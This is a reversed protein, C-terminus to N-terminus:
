VHARGIQTRFYSNSFLLSLYVDDGKAITWAQKSIANVMVKCGSHDQHLARINFEMGDLASLIPSIADSHKILGYTDSVGCLANNTDERVVQKGVGNRVVGNKDTYQAQRLTVPFDIKEVVENVTMTQMKEGRAPVPGIGTRM